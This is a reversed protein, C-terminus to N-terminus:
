KRRELLEAVKENKKVDAPLTKLTKGDKTQTVEPDALATLALSVSVNKLTVTVPGAGLDAVERATVAWELRVPDPFGATVALNELGLRAAQLAPEKSLAGLGRAYREYDKLVKYRDALEAERKAPEEPLPLLGLLRASEKLTKTRIETVRSK